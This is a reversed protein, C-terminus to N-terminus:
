MYHMGGGGGLLSSNATNVIADVKLTTIDGKLLVIKNNLERHVAYGSNDADFNLPILIILCFVIIVLALLEVHKEQAYFVCVCLCLCVCVCLVCECVLKAQKSM